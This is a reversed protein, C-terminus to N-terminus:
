GDVGAKTNIGVLVDFVGRRLDALVAARELTEVESHLCHVRVGLEAFYQTLDEAMRRTLTTVLVREGM